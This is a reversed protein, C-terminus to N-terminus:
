EGHIFCVCVGVFKPFQVCIPFPIFSPLYFIIRLYLTAYVYRCLYYHLVGHLFLIFFFYSCFFLFSFFCFLFFFFFFFSLVPMDRVLQARLFAAAEEGIAEPLNVGTSGVYRFVREGVGLLQSTSRSDPSYSSSSSFLNL